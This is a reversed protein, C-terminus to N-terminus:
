CYADDASDRQDCPACYQWYLQYCWGYVARLGSFDGGLLLPITGDAAANRQKCRACVIRISGPTIPTCLANKTGPSRSWQGQCKFEDSRPGFVDERHIQHLDTWSNGSIDSECFILRMRSQRDVGRSHSELARSRSRSRPNPWVAYQQTDSM